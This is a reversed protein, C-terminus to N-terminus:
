RTCPLMWRGHLRPRHGSAAAADKTTLQTIGHLGVSIDFYDGTDVQSLCRIHSANVEGEVTGGSSLGASISSVMGKLM